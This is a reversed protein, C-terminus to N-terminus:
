PADVLKGDKLERHQPFTGALEQSHTVCILLTQEERSMELLLSGVSEATKQDLNGTPEDALLIAPRNILARCVAVRQKEGGSIQAPRHTVRHGLGVRELLDKARKEEDKGAGNGALAPVLVNELVSCQPLLHHDQFIFGIHENRFNAQKASNLAFPDTGLIRVEGASPEDLTGVIYLLTSKGSGSPGTVVLADGRQMSLDIGTLIPLSGDTTSFERSLNSVVLDAEPMVSNTYGSADLNRLAILLLTPQEWWALRAVATTPM